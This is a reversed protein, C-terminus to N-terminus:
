CRNRTRNSSGVADRVANIRTLREGIIDNRQTPDARDAPGNETQVRQRVIRWRAEGLVIDTRIVHAAIRIVHRHRAPIVNEFIIISEGEQKGIKMALFPSVRVSEIRRCLISVHWSCHPRIPVVDGRVVLREGRRADKM